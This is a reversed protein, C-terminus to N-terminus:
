GRELAITIDNGGPYGKIPHLKAGFVNDLINVHSETTAGMKLDRTMFESLTNVGTTHWTVCTSTDVQVNGIWNFREPVFLAAKNKWLAEFVAYRGFTGIATGDKAATNFLQNAAVLGNAGPVNSPVVPPNGPIQRGLLTAALRGYLVTGGGTSSGIYMTVRKGQYFDAIADAHAPALSAFITGVVPLVGILVAATKRMLM